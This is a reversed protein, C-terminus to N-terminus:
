FNNTKKGGRTNAMKKKLPLEAVEERGLQAAIMLGIFRRLFVGEATYRLCSSALFLALLVKSKNYIALSCFADEFNGFRAFYFYFSFVRVGDAKSM